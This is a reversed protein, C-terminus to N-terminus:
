TDPWELHFGQHPGSHVLTCRALVDQGILAHIRQSDFLEAEVVPLARLVLPAEEKKAPLLIIAMDVITASHPDSGTSPTHLSEMGRSELGLAITVAPDICSVTAGTDILADGIFVEPRKQDAAGLAQWRPYSVHFAARIIPRGSVIPAAISPM